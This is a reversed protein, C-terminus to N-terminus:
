CHIGVQERHIIEGDIWARESNIVAQANSLAAEAAKETAETQRGIIKLTCIAVIIGAIGIVSLVLNPLNDPAMLRSFYSPSKNTDKDSKGTSDTQQTVNLKNVNLTDVNLMNNKPPQTDTSSQQHTNPKEGTKQGNVPIVVCYIAILLMYRMAAIIYCLFAQCHWIVTICKNAYPSRIHCVDQADVLLHCDQM